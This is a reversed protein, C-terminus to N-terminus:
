IYILCLIDGHLYWTKDCDAILYLSSESNGTISNEGYTCLLQLMSTVVICCHCQQTITYTDKMSFHVITLPVMKSGCLGHKDVFRTIFHSSGFYMISVLDYMHLEQNVIISVVTDISTPPANGIDVCMIAPAMVFKSIIMLNDVAFLCCVIM